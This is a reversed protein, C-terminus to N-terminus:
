NKYKSTQLFYSSYDHVYLNYVSVSFSRFLVVLLLLHHHYFCFLVKKLSFFHIEIVWLDIYSCMFLLYFFIFQFSRKFLLSSMTQLDIQVVNVALKIVMFFPGIILLNSTLEHLMKKSQNFSDIPNHRVNAILKTHRAGHNCNLQWLIARSSIKM